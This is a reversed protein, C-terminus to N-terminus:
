RPAAPIRKRASAIVADVLEVFSIGHMRAIIPLDSHSPHMGPLPNVEMFHPAGRADLRIDVRGVDRCELARYSALALRAVAASVDDSRPIEYRVHEEWQEKVSYSYVAPADPQLFIVEIMGIVRAAADTGVIGVTFERGALYEEVLVPQRYTELLQRCVRRLAAASTIRSAAMIGKGTGEAIPKAFLPYTLSLDHCDRAQRVVAFAPTAVGADRVLRKAVAKDLTAACTLPDSGTYPIDYLELLGPVQAERARGAVGEAVNYVLDWRDGAALRAALARGHGIREPTHGLAAVADALAAVTEAFDFEAVAEEGFGEALYDDRLDYVLGIHM